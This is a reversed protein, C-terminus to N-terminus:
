TLIMAVGVSYYVDSLVTPTEYHNLTHLLIEGGNPALIM